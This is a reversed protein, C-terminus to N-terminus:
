FKQQGGLRFRVPIGDKSSIHKETLSYSFKLLEQGFRVIVEHIYAM